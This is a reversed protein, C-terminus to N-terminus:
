TSIESKKPFVITILSIVATFIAPLIGYDVILIILEKFDLSTTIFIYLIREVIAAILVVLSFQLNFQFRTSLFPDHFYGVIFTVIVKSFSNAGIIGSSLIDLVVGAFFAYIIGPLQGEKLTIYILGILLLDPKIQKLAVLEIVSIQILILIILLAANVIVTRYM